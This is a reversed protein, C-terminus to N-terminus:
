KCMQRIKLLTVIISIVLIFATLISNSSEPDWNKALIGITSVIFIPYPAFVYKSSESQLDMPLWIILLGILVCLATTCAIHQPWGLTYTLVVALNVQAAVSVWAAFCALGNLVFARTLKIDVRKGEKELQAEYRDLAGYASYLALYLSVPMTVSTIMAYEPLKRDWLLLWAIVSICTITFLLYTWPSMHGPVQYLPGM